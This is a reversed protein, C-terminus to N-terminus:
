APLPGSASELTRCEGPHGAQRWAVSFTQTMAARFSVAVNSSIAGFFIDLADMDTRTM